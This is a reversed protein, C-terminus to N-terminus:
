IVKTLKRLLNKLVFLFDSPDASLHFVQCVHANILDCNKRAGARRVGHLRSLRYLARWVSASHGTIRDIGASLEIEGSVSCVACLFTYV